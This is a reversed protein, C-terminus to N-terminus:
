QRDQLLVDTPQLHGVAEGRGNREALASLLQFILLRADLSGADAAAEGVAGHGCGSLLEPAYLLLDTALPPM